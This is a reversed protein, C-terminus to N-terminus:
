GESLRISSPLHRFSRGEVQVAAGADDGASGEADTGTNGGREVLGPGCDEQDVLIEFRGLCGRFGYAPAALRDLRVVGIDAAGLLDLRGDVGGHRDEPREVNQDVVVRIPPIRILTPVTYVIM